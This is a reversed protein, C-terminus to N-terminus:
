SAKKRTKIYNDVQTQLVNFSASGGNLVAQHFDRLDFKDDLAKLAQTRLEEYYMSSLYYTPYVAPNTVFNTYIDRISESSLEGFYGKFFDAMEDRGWGYYNVGIDAKIHVIETLTTYASYFAQYDADSVYSVARKETYNAWGEANSSLTFVQRIPHMEKLSMFYSFQFMHGPIGEHAYTNYLTNKFDGNIYILQKRDSTYDVYPTFYFAPSSSAAMSPDVKRLEYNPKAIEPYDNKSAQEIFDLMAYGDKFDGFQEQSYRAFYANQKEQSVTGLYLAIEYLKADVFKEIESVSRDKGTSQKLLLEYYAKGNPKHALGQVPSASLTRFADSVSQYASALQNSVLARHKAKLESANTVFDLTDIVADFHTLLFYDLRQAATAIAEYQSIISEIEEAGFGTKNQQRDREFEIHKAVSEPLTEIFHLYGDIDRQKHFTFSELYAPLSGLFSRSQGIVGNGFEFDYYDKMALSGQFSEQLVKKDIIQQASLSTDKFRELHQLVDAIKALHAQNDDQSTFGLEYAQPNIGFKEPDQFLLNISIDHPDVVVAFLTDLYNKFELNTSVSQNLDDNKFGSCGTVM